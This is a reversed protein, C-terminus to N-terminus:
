TTKGLRQDRLFIWQHQDSSITEGPFLLAERFGCVGYESGYTVLLFQEDRASLFQLSLFLRGRAAAKNSSINRLAVTARLPEYLTIETTDPVVTLAFPKTPM